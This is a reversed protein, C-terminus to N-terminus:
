QVRVSIISILPYPLTQFANGAYVYRSKALIDLANLSEEDTAMGFAAYEGDWSPYEGVCIFFQSTASDPDSTRAMSITGKVHKLDNEPHGNSSFEGEIPEVATEPTDLGLGSDTEYIRYGGGQICGGPVVRHFTLGDYFGSNALNIFNEVTKPAKEPYLEIRVTLESGDQAAISFTAVPNPKTNMGNDEANDNVCGSAAATFVALAIFIAAVKALFRKNTKRNM